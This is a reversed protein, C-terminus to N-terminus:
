EGGGGHSQDCSRCWICAIRGMRLKHSTFSRNSSERRAEQKCGNRKPKHIPNQHPPGLDIVQSVTIGKTPARQDIMEPMCYEYTCTPGDGKTADNLVMHTPAYHELNRVHERGFRAFERCVPSRM